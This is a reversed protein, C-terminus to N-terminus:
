TRARRRLCALGAMASGLLIYTSPEPVEGGGGNVAGGIVWDFGRFENISALAAANLNILLDTGEDANTAIVSGFVVGSGLDNYVPVGGGAVVTASATEVEYTTYTISPNPSIYGDPQDVYLSLTASTVPFTIGELDFLFWNRYDSDNGSCEDSSGCVGAIYNNGADAGNPFGDSRYWGRVTATLVTSNNLTLTTAGSFSYAFIANSPAAQLSLSAAALLSLCAGLRAAKSLFSGITGFMDNTTEELASRYPRHFPVASNLDNNVAQKTYM